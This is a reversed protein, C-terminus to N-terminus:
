NAGEFNLEEANEPGVIAYWRANGELWYKHFIKLIEDATAANIQNLQKQGYNIDNFNMVNYALTSVIEEPTSQSEYRSNIFKNKYGALEKELPSFVYSGNEDVSEIVKGDAMIDRAEKMASVFNEYDSLNYLFEEGYPALSGSVYSYPTYCVGYHERVVNFMIASYINAALSAPIFDSSSNAPSAFVRSLYGSGSVSANTLVVPEQSELQLQPLDLKTAPTKSKPLAGLTKNLEKVLSKANVNGVAVVFIENTNMIANHLSELNEITINEISDPTVSARTKYPHNKYVDQVIKWDLVSSPEALMGQVTQQYSNMLLAYVDEDYQPNLFGDVFVPLLEDLYSDITTLTLASGALKSFSDLQANKDFLLNKRVEYSYNKSSNAMMDFLASELGSTEPALHAVGGKVGFAISAVRANKNEQVYVPIGNKLKSTKVSAAKTKKSVKPKESPVYIETKEPVGTQLAIVDPNEAYAPNKWWLAKEGDIIDYNAKEFAARNEQYVSPNVIVTVLPHKGSIYKEVFNQVDNQSVSTIKDNYTYYYEPTACVWWYRLTELLSKATQAGLIDSDVLKQAISDVKEKSYLNKDSAIQPMIEDRIVSVLHEVRETLNEEPSLLIASFEINGDARKTAYYGSAYDTDPIGLEEDNVLTQKFIGSPESLLQGIYDAAYTDELEFDTDPGRFQISVQAFQPPLQDFQMLAFEDKTFPAPNQKPGNQPRSNGNNSWTGYIDKVLKYVEDPNIDGGVFLAANSPIYYKSQMDLLQAVTANRVCDFSGAPDTRYPADPFLRCNSYYYLQHQPDAADGEIESLVVRKENELEQETMLPSRIAANWFALGKELQNSPITFFYNVRDSGTTGNWNAVGIESLAHQVSAASPYLENGKFMMHEYLHFLGATEPTQTVGGARVAIEIYALPVSHNEAVFLSLGNDLEYQYLNEVPTKEAFLFASFFVAIAALFSCKKKFYNMGIPISNKEGITM